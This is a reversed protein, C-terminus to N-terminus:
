IITVAFLFFSVERLLKQELQHTGLLQQRKFKRVQVETNHSYSYEKDRLAQEM